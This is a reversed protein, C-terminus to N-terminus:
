LELLPPLLKKMLRHAIKLKTKGPERHVWSSVGSPHPLAIVQTSHGHLQVKLVKGVVDELKASKPFLEPGLIQGISVRGLALILKPKLIEIERKLFPRCNEIEDFDPARDGSGSTSKGPFCRAVASIYIQERLEEEDLGTALGLWKFLTKGATNAFPKGYSSEHSGPAQGVLMVATEIPHSPIPPGCMKQCRTCGILEERLIKLQKKLEQGQNM